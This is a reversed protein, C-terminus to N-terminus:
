KSNWVLQQLAGLAEPTLSDLPNDSKNTSEEGSQRSANDLFRVDRAVINVYKRPSGDDGDFKRVEVRGEVIVPTGRKCRDM